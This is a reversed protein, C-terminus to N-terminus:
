EDEEKRLWVPGEWWRSTLLANGSCGRSPLDAPNHEGPIHRWEAGESLRRIEQVRNWVFVTWNENKQIWYLANSSNTWFFTKMEIKLMSKVSHTLRTAILCGLLELRPITTKKAPAVRSKSSVLQVQVSGDVKKV